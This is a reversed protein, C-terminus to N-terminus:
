EITRRIFGAFDNTATLRLVADALERGLVM